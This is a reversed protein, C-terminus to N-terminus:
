PKVLCTDVWAGEANTYSPSYTSVFADYDWIVPNSNQFIPDSVSVQRVGGPSVGYGSIVVYHSGGENWAIHVCVPLNAALQQQIDEFSLAGQPNESLKGLRALANQLYFPQNAQAPSTVDFVEEAFAAQTLQPDSNFYTQVSVAVADWCWDTEQQQEMPFAM